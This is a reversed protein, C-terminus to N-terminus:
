NRIYRVSPVPEGKELLLSVVLVANSPVAVFVDVEDLVNDVPLDKFNCTFREFFTKIESWNSYSITTLEFSPEFNPMKKSLRQLVWPIDQCIFM